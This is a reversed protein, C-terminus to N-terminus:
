KGHCTLMVQRTRERGFTLSRGVIHTLLRDPAAQIAESEAAVALESCVVVLTYKRGDDVLDELTYNGLEVGTLDDSLTLHYRTQNAFVQHTPSPAEVQDKVIDRDGVNSEAWLKGM